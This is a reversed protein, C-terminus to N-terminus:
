LPKKNMTSRICPTEYRRRTGRERIVSGLCLFLLVVLLIRSRRNGYNGLESSADLSPTRTEGTDDGLRPKCARTRVLAAICRPPPQKVFGPVDKAFEVTAYNGTLHKNFANSDHSERHHFGNDKWRNGTVEQRAERKEQAARGM